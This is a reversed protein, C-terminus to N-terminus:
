ARCALKLCAGLGTGRLADVCIVRQLKCGQRRPLVVLFLVLVLMMQDRIMCGVHVGLGFMCGM